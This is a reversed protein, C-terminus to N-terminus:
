AMWIWFLLIVLPLGLTALASTHWAMRSSLFDPGTLNNEIRYDEWDKRKKNAALQAALVGALGLAATSMGLIPVAEAFKVAAALASKETTNQLTSLGFSAFLLGQFTLTAQLRAAMLRDEAEIQRIFNERMASLATSGDRVPEGGPPASTM